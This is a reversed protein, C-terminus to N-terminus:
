NIKTLYEPRDGLFNGDNLKPEFRKTFMAYRSSMRFPTGAESESESDISLTTDISLPANVANTSTENPTNTPM